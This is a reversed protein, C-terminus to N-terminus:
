ERMVKFSDFFKNGGNHVSKSGPSTVQLCYYRDGVLMAKSKVHMDLKKNEIKWLRTPYVGGGYNESFYLNENYLLSGEVSEVAQAVTADFFLEILETSDKNFIGAPYDCYSVTYLIVVDDSVEKSTVVVYDLEGLATSVTTITLIASDPVSVEFMGEPDVYVVWEDVISPYTLWFTAFLSLFIHGM